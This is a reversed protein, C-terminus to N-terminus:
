SGVAGGTQALRNDLEALALAANMPLSIGRGHRIEPERPNIRILAGSSASALEARRRVTPIATGAGLEVAVLRAGRNRRSWANVEDLIRQSRAPVWDYDGFMLINPRALAGCHPCSPLEGVARMSEPDIEIALDDAPWVAQRCPLVCQLHHISGHVEAVHEGDFGAVQFQGDVNSTFVRAERTDAWRRLVTFGSHPKTGRYLALRHGYFGWALAPDQVFHVPDALEVFRLGLREYPPYAQWFGEDGRFDPLGSDVGMGAGACVLLADASAILEAAM